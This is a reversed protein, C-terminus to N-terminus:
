LITELSQLPATLSHFDFDGSEARRAIYPQWDDASGLQVPVIGGARLKQLVADM